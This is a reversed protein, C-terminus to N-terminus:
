KEGRPIRKEHKILFKFAHVWRGLCFTETERRATADFHRTACKMDGGRARHHKGLRSVSLERVPVPVLKQKKKVDSAPAPTHVGRCAPAFQAYEVSQNTVTPCSRAQLDCASANSFQPLEMHGNVGRTLYIFLHCVPASCRLKAYPRFEPTVLSWYVCYDVWKKTMKRKSVLRLHM